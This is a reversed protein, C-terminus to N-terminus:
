GAGMCKRVVAGLHAPEFLELQGSRDKAEHQADARCQLVRTEGEAIRLCMVEDFVHPIYRILAQGPVWANHMLASTLGDQVREQRALFILHHAPHRMLVALLARMFELMEGYARRGDRHAKLDEQLRKEAIATLSDFCITGFQRAEASHTMWSVVEQVELLTPADWLPVSSVHDVGEFLRDLNQPRLSLAGGEVSVVLPADATACLVTKGSGAAGYILAKVRNAAPLDGSHIIAM